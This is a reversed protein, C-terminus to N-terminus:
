DIRVKELGNRGFFVPFYMEEVRAPNLTYVGPFRAQLKVQYRHTGIPLRDSFIAVRDRRQERHVEYPGWGKGEEAYSCGGPIPVEIQVYEAEKKNVIEVWMTLSQGAQPSGVIKNGQQDEMWTRVKFLSDTAVPATEFWTQAVSLYVPLKGTKEISQLDEIAMKQTFPFATVTKTAKGKLVVVPLEPLEGEQLLDPLITELVRSSAYTHRWHGTEQRQALLWAQIRQLDMKHGGEARLIEYALLTAEVDSYRLSYRSGPWFLQGRMTELRYKNLSDLSYPLERMQRLRIVRLQTSLDLTTDAEIKQIFEEFHLASNLKHLLFLLDVSRYPNQSSRQVQLVLDAAVAPKNMVVPYGAEEAQLLAEIVHLSIWASTANGEWWGWLQDQNRSKELKRIMTKVQAEKRFPEGTLTKISKEMLLAKLKSAAQENCLYPYRQVFDIEDLLVDLLSTHITVDVSDGNRFSPSVISDGLLIWFQGKTSRDGKPYLALPREEGDFYGSEAEDLRFTISVSDQGSPAVFALTDLGVPGIQMIQQSLVQEEQLFSLSISLSDGSVNQVKGFALSSDGEVLFRPLSLRAMLPKYSLTATELTAGRRKEFDYALVFNRWKTIDDPFTVSYSAKGQADTRLMPQWYAYDHFNSRLSSPAGSLGPEMPQLPDPMPVGNASVMMAMPANLEAAYVDPVGDMDSDVTLQRKRSVGASYGTVMVEQLSAEEGFQDHITVKDLYKVASVTRAGRSQIDNSGSTAPLKFLQEEAIKTPAKEPVLFVDPIQEGKEVMILQSKYGPFSIRLTDVANPVYAFRGDLDTFTGRKTRGLQVKVGPMASRTLSDSVVVTFIVSSDTASGLILTDRPHLEAQLLQLSAPTIPKLLLERITHWTDPNGTQWTMTDPQVMAKGNPLVQIEDIQLRKGDQTWAQYQYLGPPIASFTNESGTYTRFFSMDDKASLIGLQPWPQISPTLQITGLNPPSDWRNWQYQYSQLHNSITSNRWAQLHKDRTLIQDKVDAYQFSHNGISLIQNMEWEEIERSRMKWFSDSFSYAFGPEFPQTVQFAGPEAFTLSSQRFPGYLDYNNQGGYRFYPTQLPIITRGQEFYGFSSYTPSQLRLMYPSLHDKEEDLLKKMEFIRVNAAFKDQDVVFINKMGKEVWVSDIAILHTATRISLKHYGEYTPFSYPQERQLGNVFIPIADMIVYRLPQVVGEKVIFMSIQTQKATDEVQFTARGLQPYLFQYASLSDIGFRSAWLWYDMEKQQPTLVIGAKSFSNFSERSPTAISSFPANPPTYNPFSSTIGYATLDADAVPSGDHHLLSISIETKEGPFIKEPVSTSMNIGEPDWPLSYERKKMDGGWLYSLTVYYPKNPNAPLAMNLDKGQGRLVSANKEFLEYWCDLQYPNTLSVFLSDGQRRTKLNVADNSPSLNVMKEGVSLSYSRIDPRLLLTAPLRIPQDILRSGTDGRGTLTAQASSEACGIQKALLTDRNQTLSLRCPDQRFNLYLTQNITEGDVSLLTAVVKLNMDATPFISDPVTISTAGMPDLIQSLKWLTDPIFVRPQYTRSIGISLLSLEIRAGPVNLNNRDTMQATLVLPEARYIISNESSLTGSVEKLEYDELRFSSALYIKGVKKRLILSVDRDLQFQLSDHIVFATEYGGDRYPRLTDIFKDGAPYQNAFLLIPENVAKGKSHLVLAKLKLTDGPRYKPQNTALYGQTRQHLPGRSFPSTITAIWGTPRRQKISKIPDAILHFPIGWVWRIPPTLLIANGVEALTLAGKTANIEYFDSHGKYSIVLTGEKRSKRHRYTLTAPDYALSKGKVSVEADSIITGLSDMVVVALDQNNNVVFAQWQYISRLKRQETNDEAWVELYYGKPLEDAVFSASFLVSDSPAAYQSLPLHYPGEKLINEVQTNTLPILYRYSSAPVAPFITQAAAWIPFVSLLLLLFYRM